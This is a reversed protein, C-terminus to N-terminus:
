KKNDIFFHMIGAKIIGVAISIGIIILITKGVSGGSKSSQQSNM